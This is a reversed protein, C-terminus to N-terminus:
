TSPADWGFEWDYLEDTRRNRLLLDYRAQRRLLQSLTQLGMAVLETDSCEPFTLRLHALAKGADSGERPLEVARSM